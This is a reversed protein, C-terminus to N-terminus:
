ILFEAQIIEAKEKKYTPASVEWLFINSNEM